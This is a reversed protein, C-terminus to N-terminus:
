SRARRLRFPRWGSSWVILGLAILLFLGHVWWIGFRIAMAGDEVAGRAANVSLLYVVYLLIAPLIKAFRGQRPNTKSLPVALLSVTLVLMPLSFRWQIEARHEPDDSGLLASTPMAESDARLEWPKVPELRQGYEEFDTVQFDARGPIGQIRQGQELVLYREGTGESRRSFGKDAVVVVLGGNDGNEGAEDDDAQALFVSELRGDASIGQTYTVGRDGRLSYFRGPSLGEIEGRQRQANFLEEAKALGSPTVVISMWGVLAAVLAGILLTYTILRRESMGCAQLVTMESDVYLRGYTLLISLFFALPLVLELFDPIRYGIIAFLVGPDLKGAAADALYKIFRASVIVLMLVACVAATTALVDRALYRFIIM